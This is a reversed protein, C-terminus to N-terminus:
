DLLKSLPTNLNNYTINPISKSVGLELPDSRFERNVSARTHLKVEKIEVPPM